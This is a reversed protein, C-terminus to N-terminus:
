FEWDDEQKNEEKIIEDCSMKIFLEKDPESMAITPLIEYSITKGTMVEQENKYNKWIDYKDEEKIKSDLTLYYMYRHKAENEFKFIDIFDYLVENWKRSVLKNDNNLDVISLIEIPLVGKTEINTLDKIELRMIINLLKDKENLIGEEKEKVMRILYDEKIENWESEEINNPIKDVGVWFKIEKDEMTILDLIYDDQDEAEYPKGAILECEQRTFYNRETLTYEKTKKDKIFDVLIKERIDPNFCVLLPHIRNNFADLYKIVNYEDTTLEPNSEIQENPILKCNLVMETEKKPYYGNTQFFLEKEKKSLKNKIIATIDGDNKSKGINVYYIVDGLNINLNYKIALEMHAQKPLDNGKKNKLSSKKKYENINLKVKSKSAIKVLPIKYNYILDVYEYYYEIFEYGKGDLLLKIGNDLFEEIYTPMKKSKITNGVFKTKDGMKNAYNKRAFNITTDIEEDLDLGMWGKMYNENFEALVADVGSLEQVGYRETKWHTGKTIYKINEIGDPLGFNIGDTDLLIPIFKYKETFFKVMMRLYQRGRCTTEEAYDTDGWNFIYPAGYGGFWSNALIKLPLQKKDYLTYLDEEQKREKILEESVIENNKELEKIKKDLEKFKDKHVSTLEKFKDRNSVIYSLLGEMVNSIDLSPFINHTLQTKPYLAAFDLKVCNKAYGVQLLRSLGGTFDRKPETEPIALGNEYSWALMILRWTGATGMTSSRTYTTPIIKGLLFAAQNYIKDIMETEWLDDLLYRQVIYNGKVEKYLGSDKKIIHNPNEEDLKFWEGNENNFYYKHENDNWTKFILNGDVYVRNKKAVKSYKTIYKLGWSKIDSNIAQARRVSHAIDIINHGWMLTQEYKETDGGLKLTSTKRKIKSDESLTIAIDTITISLRNCRKFFFDWDFAESNYGTIIDPKLEDIIKFFEVINLRENDRKEQETDGLTELVKEYGRNDRIGIQFIRDKTADLGETELDFQFRHLDNYDDFGKFLRKGTQIMYQEPLTLSIFLKRFKENFIDIGGERFFNMLHNYSNKCEIIYKYGNELRKPEFGESNTIKLVKIKVGYKKMAKMIEGRNGNFLLQSVEHKAWVFPNFNHTEIYKGKVPDNIILYVENVHYASEIAVIYKQEDHGILFQEIVEPSVQEKSM